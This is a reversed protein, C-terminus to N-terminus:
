KEWNKQQGGGAEEALWTWKSRPRALPTSLLRTADMSAQSPAPNLNCGSGLKPCPGRHHIGMSVPQRAPTSHTTRRRSRERYIRFVTQLTVSHRCERAPWSNRIPARRSVDNSKSFGACVPARCLWRILGTDQALFISATSPHISPRQRSFATCTTSYTVCFWFMM